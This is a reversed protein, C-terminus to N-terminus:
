QQQQHGCWCSLQQQQHGSWGSLQQQQHGWWCSLPLYNETAKISIQVQNKDTDFFFNLVIEPPNESSVGQTYLTQQEGTSSFVNVQFQIKSFTTDNLQQQINNCVTSFQQKPNYITTLPQLDITNIYKYNLEGVANIRTFETTGLETETQTFSHLSSFILLIIFLIQKM